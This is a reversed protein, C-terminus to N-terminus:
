KTNAFSTLRAILESKRGSTKLGNGSLLRRLKTVTLNKIKGTNVLEILESKDVPPTEDVGPTDVGEVIADLLKEGINKSDERAKVGRPSESTALIKDAEEQSIGDTFDGVNEMVQSVMQDALKADAGTSNESQASPDDDMDKSINELFEGAESAMKELVEEAYSDDSDDGIKEIVEQADEIRDKGFDEVADVGGTFARGTADVVTKIANSFFPVSPRQVGESVPSSPSSTAPPDYLDSVTPAPPAAPPSPSSSSSTATPQPATRAEAVSTETVSSTPSATAASTDSVAQPAGTSTPATPMPEVKPPTRLAAIEQLWAREKAEANEKVKNEKEALLSAIEVGVDNNTADTSAFDPPNYAPVLPSVLLATATSSPDTSSKSSPDTSSKPLLAPPTPNVNSDRMFEYLRRRRSVSIYGM